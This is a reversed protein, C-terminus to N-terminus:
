VFHGLLGHLSILLSKHKDLPNLAHNGFIQNPYPKLTHHTEYQVNVLYIHTKNVVLRLSMRHTLINNIIM